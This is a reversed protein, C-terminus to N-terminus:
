RNLLGQWKQYLKLAFNDTMGCVYDAALQMRNYISRKSFTEYIFRYNSSIMEYIRNSVSWDGKGESLVAPILKELIYNITNFGIIENELISKHKFIKETGIKKLAKSTAACYSNGLIDKNYKGEIIDNVNNCYEEVAADIMFSQAMIRFQQIAIELRNKYSSSMDDYNHIFNKLLAFEKEQPSLFMDDLERSLNEVLIEKTLIGKKCADEIDAVCYAIDDAAELLPTLPFRASLGFVKQIDRYDNEESSFFGFKKRPLEAGKKNGEISNYPYKILTALVAHTLNMGDRDRVYHLTRLVRFTQVNGDFFIFDNKQQENLENAINPNKNFYEKFFWRISDEGFHGFPPNGLDHVLGATALISPIYGTMNESLVGLEILKKEVSLGISRGLSSVELSHTLRTRVFDGKDLQFVQTKDQLRRFASSFIVRTFDNEFSNRYDNTSIHSERFRKTTLFKDFKKEM